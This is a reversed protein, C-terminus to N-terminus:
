ILDVGFYVLCTKSSCILVTKLRSGLVSRSRLGSFPEWARGDQEGLNKRCQVGSFLTNASKPPQQIPVPPMFASMEVFKALITPTTTRDKKSNLITSLFPNQVTKTATDNSKAVREPVNSSRDLKRKRHTEAAIPLSPLELLVCMAEVLVPHGIVTKSFNEM